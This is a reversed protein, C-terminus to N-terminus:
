PQLERPRRLHEAAAFALAERGRAARRQASQLAFELLRVRAEAVSLAERMRELEESADNALRVAVDADRIATALAARWCQVEQASLVQASGVRSNFSAVHTKVKRETEAVTRAAAEHESRAGYADLRATQLQALQVRLCPALQEVRRMADSLV